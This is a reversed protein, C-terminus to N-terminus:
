AHRWRETFKDAYYRYYKELAKYLSKADQLRVGEAAEYLIPLVANKDALNKIAYSVYGDMLKAQIQELYPNDAMGVMFQHFQMEYQSQLQLDSESEMAQLFHLLKRQSKLLETQDAKERAFALSVLRAEMDGVTDFVQYIQERNLIIAQIHRNPLRKAFGEEVLTQLAERVPMRSVGLMEALAEQALEEEPEIYGSLIEERIAQAIRDKTQRKNISEM